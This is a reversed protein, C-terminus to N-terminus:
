YVEFHIQNAAAGHGMLQKRVAMVMEPGGCLYAHHKAHHDEIHETVRGRLGDWEAEPKSLTLTYTFNPYKAALAHFEEKWFIDEIHRVGMFLIIEKTSQKIELEERIMGMMPAMGSGTGVFLHSEAEPNVAFRGRVESMELTDGTAATALSPDAENSTRLYESAVGGEYLKILFLLTDDGPTSAISYSRPTTKEGNPILFQVFQGAVFAFGAPKSTEVTIMDKALITKNLITVEFMTHETMKTNVIDYWYYIM